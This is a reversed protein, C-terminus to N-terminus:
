YIYQSYVIGPNRLYENSYSLILRSSSISLAEPIVRALASRQVSM